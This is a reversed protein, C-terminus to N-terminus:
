YKISNNLSNIKRFYDHFWKLFNLINKFIVINKLGIIASGNGSKVSRQDM